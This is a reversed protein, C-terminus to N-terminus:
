LKIATIMNRSTSNDNNDDNNDDDEDDGDYDDCDDNDDEDDDDDDDGDGDGDTDDTHAWNNILLVAGVATLNPPTDRPALALSSEEGFVSKTM